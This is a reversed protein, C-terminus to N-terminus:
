EKLSVSNNELTNARWLPMDWSSSSLFENFSIMSGITLSYPVTTEGGGRLGDCCQVRANHGLM